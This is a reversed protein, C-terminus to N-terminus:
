ATAQLSGMMVLDDVPEDFSCSGYSRFFVRASKLESVSFRHGGLRLHDRGLDGAEESALLSEVATPDASTVLAASAALLNLFGHRWVGLDAWIHRWPHHLGATAKIPLGGRFADVLVEGLAAPPPFSEPTAGGCRVKVGIRRGPNRAAIKAAREPPVELWITLAQDIEDFHEEIDLDTTELQRISLASAEIASIAEDAPQDLVVGVPLREEGLLWELDHLKSSPCLFAALMWEHRGRQHRRYTMLADDLSLSEPPYMGAYDILHSLLVRPATLAATM